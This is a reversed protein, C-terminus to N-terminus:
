ETGERKAGELEEIRRSIRDLAQELQEAQTKLGNMEAEAPAAAPPFPAGPYAAPAGYVPYSPAPAFYGFGRGFGRGGGRGWFRRGGWSNAFGPVAYGACFGAGRGTMPGLGLPGTGDGRPM